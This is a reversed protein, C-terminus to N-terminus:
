GHNGAKKPSPPTEPKKAPAQKAKVDLFAADMELIYDIFAEQDSAGYLDLYAKIETLSIPNVGMGMPRTRNLKRFAYLYEKMWDHLEPRNELAKPSVGSSELDYLFDLRDGWQM